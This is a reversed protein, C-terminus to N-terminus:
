AFEFHIMALSRTFCLPAGVSVNDVDIKIYMGISIPVVGFPITHFISLMRRM